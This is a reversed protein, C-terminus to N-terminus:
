VGSGAVMDSGDALMHLSINCRKPWQGWTGDSGQSFRLAGHGMRGPM